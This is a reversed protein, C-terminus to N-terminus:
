EPPLAGAGLEVNIGLSKLEELNGKPHRHQDYITKYCLPVTLERGSLAQVRVGQYTLGVTEEPTFQVMPFIKCLYKFTYPVKAGGVVMGPIREKPTVEAREEIEGKIESLVETVDEPTRAKRLTRKVERKVRANKVVM